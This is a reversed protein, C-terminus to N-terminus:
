AIKEKVDNTQAEQKIDLTITGAALTIEYETAGDTCTMQEISKITDLSISMSPLPFRDYTDNVITIANDDSYCTFSDSSFCFSYDTFVASLTGSTHNLARVFQEFSIIHNM